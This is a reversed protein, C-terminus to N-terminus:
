IEVALNAAAHFQKGTARYFGVLSVGITMKSGVRGKLNLDKDFDIKGAIVATACDCPFPKGDKSYSCAHLRKLLQTNDPFGVVSGGGSDAELPPMEAEGVVNHVEYKLDDHGTVELFIEEKLLNVVLFRFEVPRASSASIHTPYILRLGEGTGGPTLHVTVSAEPMPANKANNSGGYLEVSGLWLITTVCVALKSSPM